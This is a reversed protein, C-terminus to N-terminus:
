FSYNEIVSGRRPISFKLETNSHAEKKEKLERFKLLRVLVSPSKNREEAEQRVPPQYLHLYAFGIECGPGM